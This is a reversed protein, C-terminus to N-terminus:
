GGSECDSIVWAIATSGAPALFGPFWDGTGDSDVGLRSVLGREESWELCIQSGLIVRGERVTRGSDLM